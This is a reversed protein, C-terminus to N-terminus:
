KKVFWFACGHFQTENLPPMAFLDNVTKKIDLAVLSVYFTPMLIECYDPNALLFSALLYQENYYREEWGPPYDLPLCIDHIGVIVGAPLMPLIDLFFVTVDSNQFCRHSGDFFVIDGPEISSFIDLSVDELAHRIVEDCLGDIEVRPDPDISTVRTTLEFHKITKAAFRTSNGSGIELYQKPRRETLFSSIFMADLPPLFGNNWNPEEPKEPIANTTITRFFESLKGLKLLQDRYTVANGALLNELQPHNPKQTYGYRIAFDYTYDLYINVGREPKSNLRSELKSIEESSQSQKLKHEQELTRIQELLM